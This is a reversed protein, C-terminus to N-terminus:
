VGEVSVRIEGDRLRSYIIYAGQAESYYGVEYQDASITSTYLYCKRYRASNPQFNCSLTEDPYVSAEPNNLDSFVKPCARLELERSGLTSSYGGWDDKPFKGEKIYNHNDFQQKQGTLYQKLTFEFDVENLRGSCVALPYRKEGPILSSNEYYNNLAWVVQEIDAKRKADRLKAGQSFFGWISVGILILIMFGIVGLELFSLGKRKPKPQKTSQEYFDTPAFGIETPQNNQYQQNPMSKM